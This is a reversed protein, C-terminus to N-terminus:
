ARRARRAGNAIVSWCALLYTHAMQWSIDTADRRFCGRVLWYPIRVFFFCFVLLRGLQYSLFGRNKKIFLLISRSLQLRMQPKVQRSSAGGFHIIEADPTFMIKWGAKHFRYCWDTEEGYMFFQEDLMGVQYIAEARVLMYCGRIVEVERIDNNDWWTMRERGFFRNQPFLKYLYSSSLLMNLVSPYMFCTAQLTRDPNLVRCGVVAVEPHGDAFAVTKSIADSLVVTDSNLLLVYRGQAIAIAQNNAAAFGRNQPNTVLRVQPFDERVMAASGDTSANDVVIVEYSVVRTQEYLSSLCGRLMDRTNWNVIIISVDLTNM